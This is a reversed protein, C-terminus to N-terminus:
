NTTRSKTPVTVQLCCSVGFHPSLAHARQDTIGAAKTPGIVGLKRMQTASTESFTLGVMEKRLCSAGLFAGKGEAGGRMLTNLVPMRCLPARASLRMACKNLIM